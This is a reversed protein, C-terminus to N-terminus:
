VSGGWFAGADAAGATGALRAGTETSAAALSPEHRRFLALAALPSAGSAGLAAVIEVAASRLFRQLLPLEMGLVSAALASLLAARAKELM